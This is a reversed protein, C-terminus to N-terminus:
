RIYWKWHCPFHPSIDISGVDKYSLWSVFTCLPSRIKFVHFCACQYFPDPNSKDEYQEIYLVVKEYYLTHVYLVITWNPMIWRIAIYKSSANARSLRVSAFTGSMKQSCLSYWMSGPLCAVWEKILYKKRLLIARVTEVMTKIISISSPYNFMEGAWTSCNKIRVSLSTHPRLKYSDLSCFLNIFYHTLRWWIDAITECM